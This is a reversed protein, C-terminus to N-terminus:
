ERREVTLLTRLLAPEGEVPRAREDLLDGRADAALRGAVCSPPRGDREAERHDHRRRSWLLREIADVLQLRDAAAARRVRVAPEADGDFAHRDLDDDGLGRPGAGLEDARRARARVDVRELRKRVRTVFLADVDREANGPARGLQALLREPTLRRREDRER